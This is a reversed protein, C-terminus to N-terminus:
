AKLADDRISLVSKQVEEIIKDINSVNEVAKLPDKRSLEHLEEKSRVDDGKSHPGMRGAHILLCFPKCESRVLDVLKSSAQIVRCVDTTEIEEVSIDFAEPRSAIKGAIQLSSPTSQACGNDEIVFLIPLGWLAAINFSEYVVGQGLTGDGLFVCVISNSGKLKQALATGVSIPLGGGQIGNSFFNKFHLHQSGGRGGCVGGPKGMIELFLKKMEGCYSLFHGHCRHNSFVIDHDKDLSSLVGVASAEQGLCTHTTGSLVGQTFMDLLTKEFVRIYAMLKYLEEASSHRNCLPIKEM